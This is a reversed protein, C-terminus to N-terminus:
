ANPRLGRAAHDLADDIKKAADCFAALQEVKVRKDAHYALLWANETEVCWGLNKEFFALTDSDMLRRIAAEDPGRLLYKSSFEPRHEFDIDKWGFANAIKHLVNEPRLEMQPFSRGDRRFAAVTQTEVSSSKGHSEIFRYDFLLTREEMGDRQLVNSLHKGGGQQFLHTHFALSPDKDKFEFGRTRAFHRLAETREKAQRRTFFIAAIVVLVAVPIWFPLPM